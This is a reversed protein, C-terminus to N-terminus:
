IAKKGIKIHLNWRVEKPEDPNGWVAKIREFHKETPDITNRDIYSQTASWSRLYGLCQFLDWSLAMEMKPAQIEALPMNITQYKNRADFLKESWYDEIDRYILQFAADLETTSRFEEYTWAALVANPKLVRLAEKYFAEKDFWHLACAVTILDISESELGSEEAPQVRFEVNEIELANDIQEKSADTAIVKDFYKALKRAAQGNGTGCDWALQKNNCHKVIFDYLELPYEPRFKQFNGSAKFFSRCFKAYLYNYNLFM